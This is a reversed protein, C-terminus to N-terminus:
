PAALYVDEGLQVQALYAMTYVVLIKKKKLLKFDEQDSWFIDNFIGPNMQWFAVMFCDKLFTYSQLCRVTFHKLDIQSM